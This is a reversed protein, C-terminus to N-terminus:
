DKVEPPGAHHPADNKQQNKEGAADGQVSLRNRKEIQRVRGIRDPREEGM